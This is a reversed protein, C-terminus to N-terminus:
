AHLYICVEIVNKVYQKLLAVYAEHQQIALQVNIPSEPEDKRLANFFQSSIPRVVAHTYTAM